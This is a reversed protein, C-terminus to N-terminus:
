ESLERRLRELSERKADVSDWEYEEEPTLPQKLLKTKQAFIQSKDWLEKISINIRRIREIKEM